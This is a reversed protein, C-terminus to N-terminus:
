GEDKEAVWPEMGEMDSTSLDEYARTGSLLLEPNQLHDDGEGCISQIIFSFPGRRILRAQKRM